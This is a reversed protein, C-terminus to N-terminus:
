NGQNELWGRAKERHEDNIHKGLTYIAAAIAGFDDTFGAMPLLDPIADIPFIFYALAAFAIVKAQLPTQPDTACYFMAVADTAFPVKAAYRKIKTWFHEQVYEEESQNAVKEFEENEKKNTM